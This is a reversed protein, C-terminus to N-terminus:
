LGKAQALRAMLLGIDTASSDVSGGTVMASTDVGRNDAEGDPLSVQEVVPTKVRSLRPTLVEVPKDAMEPVYRILEESAWVGGDGRAVGLRADLRASLVGTFSLVSGDDNKGLEFFAKFVCPEGNPTEAVASGVARGEDIVNQPVKPAGKPDNLATERINDAVKAGVLLRTALNNRVSPDIGNQQNPQQTAYVFCIGTYRATKTINALLQYILSKMSIEYLNALVAPSDKDGMIKKPAVAYQAIEDAVLLWLPYDQKVEHSLEWWNAVGYQELVRARLQAEELVYRLTAVISELGDFGRGREHLRNAVWMYDALGKGHEDVVLVQGGSALFGYIINNIVVSKGGNSMGAVLVGPSDKFDLMLTDGETETQGLKPLKMGIPIHRFDITKEERVAISKPFTPPKAPIITLMNNQVNVTYYWGYAGIQECAELVRKDYKSDAWAFTDPLKVQWGHKRNGSLRIDWANLGLASALTRRSMLTVDDLRQLFAKGNVTDVQVVSMSPNKEELDAVLKKINTSAVTDFKYGITEAQEVMNKDVLLARHHEADVRLLRLAPFHKAINKELKSMDDESAPNFGDPLSLSKVM